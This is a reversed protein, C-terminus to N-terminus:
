AYTQSDPRATLKFSFIRKSSCAGQVLSQIVLLEIICPHIYTYVLGACSRPDRGLALWTTWSTPRSTLSAKSSSADRPKQVSKTYMSPKEHKWTIGNSGKGIGFKHSPGNLHITTFATNPNNLSINVANTYKVVVEKNDAQFFFSYNDAYRSYLLVLVLRCLWAQSDNLCDVFRGKLLLLPQLDLM